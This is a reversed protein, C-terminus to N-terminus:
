HHCNDYHDLDPPRTPRFNDTRHARRRIVVVTTHHKDSTTVAGCVVVVDATTFFEPFIFTAVSSVTFSQMGDLLGIINLRLFVLFSEGFPYKEGEKEERRKSGM